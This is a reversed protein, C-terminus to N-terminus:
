APLPYSHAPDTDGFDGGEGDKWRGSRCAAWIGGVALATYVAPVAIWLWALGGMLRGYVTGSAPVM